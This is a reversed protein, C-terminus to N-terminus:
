GVEHALMPSPLHRTSCRRSLRCYNSIIPFTFVRPAQGHIDLTAELIRRRFQRGYKQGPRLRERVPDGCPRAPQRLFSAIAIDLGIQESRPAASVVAGLTEASNM